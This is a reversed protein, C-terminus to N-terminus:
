TFLFLFYTVNIDSSVPPSAVLYKEKMLRLKATLEPLASAFGPVFSLIYILENEVWDLLQNNCVCIIFVTQLLCFHQSQSSFSLSEFFYYLIISVSVFGTYTDQHNGKWDLNCPFVGLVTERITWM